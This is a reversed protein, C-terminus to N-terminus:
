SGKKLSTLAVSTHTRQSKSYLLGYFYKRVLETFAKDRLVDVDKGNKIESDIDCVVRIDGVLPQYLVKRNSFHKSWFDVDHTRHFEWHTDPDVFQKCLDFIIQQLEKQDVTSTGSKIRDLERAIWGILLRYRNVTNESRTIGEGNTKKLPVKPYRVGGPADGLVFPVHLLQDSKLVIWALERLLHFNYDFFVEASLPGPVYWEEDVKAGRYHEVGNNSKEYLVSPFSSLDLNHGINWAQQFFVVSLNEVSLSYDGRSGMEAVVDWLDHKTGDSHFHINPVWHGFDIKFNLYNPWRKLIVIRIKMESPSEFFVWDVNTNGEPRYEGEVRIPLIRYESIVGM